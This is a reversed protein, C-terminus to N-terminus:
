IAQAAWLYNSVFFLCDKDCSPSTHGEVDHGAVNQDLFVASMCVSAVPPDLDDM